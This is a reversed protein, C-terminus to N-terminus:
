VLISLSWFFAPLYLSSTAQFSSYMIEKFRIFPVLNTQVEEGNEVWSNFASAKTALIPYLDKVQYHQEQLRLMSQEISEPDPLLKGWRPVVKCYYKRYHLEGHTASLSLSSM